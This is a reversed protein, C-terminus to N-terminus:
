SKNSYGEKLSVILLDVKALTLHLRLYLNLFSELSIGIVRM